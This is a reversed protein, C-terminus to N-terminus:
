DSQSSNPETVEQENTFLGLIDSTDASIDEEESWDSNDQVNFPKDTISSHSFNKWIAHKKRSEGDRNKVIHYVFDDHTDEDQRTEIQIVVTAHQAMLSSRGIRHLGITQIETQNKSPTLRNLQVATVVPIGYVRGFEHIKGALKGLALWDDSDEEMDEMLGMYDIFIVDPTYDTKIEEFKLELQEVSFGRPVDVIDFEYPYREIFDFSTKLSEAEAKTLTADRIGYNPVDALRSMTRRFCDRYPMELSFYTVHYGKQFQDTLTNIQNKQMWIQVAMNNMLMSKGSGTEGAIIVLDAPRLGNNIYDFFSYGTLIGKGLETDKTKAVYDRKFEPIHQKLTQRSFTQQDSSVSKVENIQKQIHKITTTLNAPSEANLYEKIEKVKTDGFRQKIKALDFSYDADDYPQNHKNWFNDILELMKPEASYVDVLTRRTPRNKFTRVYDIFARGLQQADNDLFLREDYQLAFDLAIRQHQSVARLLNWDM